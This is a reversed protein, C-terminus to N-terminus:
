DDFLNAPADASVSYELKDFHIVEYGTMGLFPSHFPSRVYVNYRNVATNYAERYNFLLNETTTIDTMLQKYNGQSSLEPYREVVANIGEKITEVDSDSISISSSRANVVDMLTQYEHKDYAKVCEVLRPILDARRKEQLNINSKATTVAEEYAIAKAPISNIGVILFIIFAVAAVAVIIITKKSKAINKM